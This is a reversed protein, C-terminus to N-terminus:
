NYGYGYEYEHKYGYGCGCGCEYECEYKRCGFTFYHLSKKATFKEM